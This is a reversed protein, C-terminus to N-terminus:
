PVEKFAVVDLVPPDFPLHNGAVFEVKLLHQGPSVDPVKQDLSATMTLLRDDILIHLHGQDPRVDTTTPVVIKADELDVKVNVTSGHVLQGDKPSVIKLKASSAIQNITSTPTTSSAGGTCSVALLCASVVIAAASVRRRASTM